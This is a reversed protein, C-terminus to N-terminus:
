MNTHPAKYRTPVKYCDQFMNASRRSLLDQFYCQLSYKASPTSAYAKTFRIGWPMQM